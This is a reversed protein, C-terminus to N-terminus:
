WTGGAVWSVIILVAAAILLVRVAWKLRRDWPPDVTMRYMFLVWALAGLTTGAAFIARTLTPVTLWNIM